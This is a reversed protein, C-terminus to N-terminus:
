RVAPGHDVRKVSVKSDALSITADWTGGADVIRVVVSRAAPDSKAEISRPGEAGAKRPQLVTVVVAGESNGSKQLEPVLVIRQTRPMTRSGQPVEYVGNSSELGPSSAWVDMMAKGADVTYRVVDASRDDSRTVKASGPAHLLLEMRRPRVRSQTRSSVAMKIFKGPIGFPEGRLEVKDGKGIRVGNITRMHLDTEQVNHTWEGVVKDGVAVVYRGVGPANDFYDVDLDFTGDPGTHEFWVRGVRDDQSPKLFERKPSEVEMGEFQVDWRTWAKYYGTQLAALDDVVVLTKTPKLFLWHRAYRKLGLGPHYAGTADGVVYDYQGSTESRIIKAHHDYQLADEAAFWQVGGGLQGTSDILLTSHNGTQKRHTYGPDVLLWSGEAFVQFSNCDPHEHAAGLDWKARGRANHGLWPGSRLGVLMADISWDTRMMVQGTDAFHHFTPQDSPRAPVVAQDYWMVTQWADKGPRGHLNRLMLGTGQAVPDNLTAAIRALSHTPLHSNAARPSDGFDMAWYRKSMVPLTSHLLYLPMNALWPCKSYDVGRTQMALEAYRLCFELAYAGYSLGEISTGDPNSWKFTEEFFDDALKQWKGARQDEGSLAAAAFALGCFSVHGHNQLYQNRWYGRGTTSQVYDTEAERALRARVTKREAEDLDNYLWDYAISGGWLVHGRLLDAHLGVKANKCIDLLYEKAVALLEADGSLRATVALRALMNGHGRGIKGNSPAKTRKLRAIRGEVYKWMKRQQDTLNTRWMRIQADNMMLRTHRRAAWQASIEDRKGPSAATSQGALGSACSLLMVTVAGAAAVNKVINWKM